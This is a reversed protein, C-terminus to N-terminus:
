VLWRPVTHMYNEYDEGFTALLDREEKRIVTYTMTFIYLNIAAIAALVSFAGLSALPLLFAVYIPNRSYKFIGSTTLTRPSGYTNALMSFRMHRQVLLIGGFFAIMGALPVYAALGGQLLSNQLTDFGTIWLGMFFSFGSLWASLDITNAKGKLEFVPRELIASAQM